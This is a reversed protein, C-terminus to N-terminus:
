YKPKIAAQGGASLDRSESFETNEVDAKLDDFAQNLEKFKEALASYEKKLNDVSAAKAKGELRASVDVAFAEFKEAVVGFAEAAQSQDEARERTFLGKVVEVLGPREEEEEEFELASIEISESLLNAGDESQKSFKLAETGLSAPTDTVALGVLYAGGNLPFEKQLEISTFLKQGAKNMEVLAPLPSIKAFLALKGALAGEKIEEAKLEVVDGVAKFPSDALLSRLHEVWVRASYDEKKYSDAMEQIDERAIKRGDVTSGQVAVRFFKSLLVLSM